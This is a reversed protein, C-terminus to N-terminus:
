RAQKKRERVIIDSADKSSSGKRERIGEALGVVAAGTIAALTGTILAISVDRIIKNGM